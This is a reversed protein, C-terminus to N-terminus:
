DVRICFLSKGPSYLMSISVKWPSKLLVADFVSACVSHCNTASQAASSLTLFPFLESALVNVTFPHIRGSEIRPIPLVASWVEVTEGANRGQLSSAGAGRVSVFLHSVGAPWLGAGPHQLRIRIRLAVIRDLSNVGGDGSVDTTLPATVHVQACLPPAAEHRLVSATHRHSRLIANADRIRSDAEHLRQNQDHQSVTM